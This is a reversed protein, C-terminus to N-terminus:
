TRGEPERKRAAAGLLRTFDEKHAPNEAAPAEPVAADTAFGKKRKQKELAAGVALAAQVDPRDFMEFIREIPIVVGFGTNKQLLNPPEGSGARQFKPVVIEDEKSEIVHHGILIGIPMHMHGDRFQLGKKKDNYIMPPTVFVPSGSLGAISHLEVLYGEVYGQETSVPEEPMAAIHGVRLIPINRLQGYHSTYLGTVCVEDGITIEWVAFSKVFSKRNVPILLCDFLGPDFIFTYVIIDTDPREPELCFSDKPIKIVSCSGDRRNMRAYITDGSIRDIVHKATAVFLYTDGQGADYGCLTGTGLPLFTGNAELGLFVVTKRVLDDVQM